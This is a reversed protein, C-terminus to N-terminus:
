NRFSKHWIERTNIVECCRAGNNSGSPRGYVSPLEAAFAAFLVFLVFNFLLLLQLLHCHCCRQLHLAWGCTVIDSLCSPLAKALCKAPLRSNVCTFQPSTSTSTSTSPSPHPVSVTM